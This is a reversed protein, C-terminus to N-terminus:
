QPKTTKIWQNTRPTLYNLKTPQLDVAQFLRQM